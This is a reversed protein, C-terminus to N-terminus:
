AFLARWDAAAQEVTTPTAPDLADAFLVFLDGLEGELPPDDGLLDDPHDLLDDDPASM